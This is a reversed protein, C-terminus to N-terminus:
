VKAGNKREINKRQNPKKGLRGPRQAQRGAVRRRLSRSLAGNTVPSGAQHAASPQMCDGGARKSRGGTGFTDWNGGDGVSARSRGRRGRLWIRPQAPPKFGRTSEWGGLRVPGSSKDSSKDV